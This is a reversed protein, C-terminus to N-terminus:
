LLKVNKEYSDGKSDIELIINRSAIETLKIFQNKEEQSMGRTLIKEYEKELAFLKPMAKKSKESLFINYKRKDKESQRREIYGKDEMQYLRKAIGGKDIRLLKALEDQSLGENHWIAILYPPPCDIKSEIIKKKILLKSFRHIISLNRFLQTKTHM